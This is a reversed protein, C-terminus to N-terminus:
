ITGTLAQGRSKVCLPITLLHFGKGEVPQPTFFDHAMPEIADTRPVQDTNAPLDQLVMRGRVHPYRSRVAEIEHGLAGGIDVFLVADQDVGDHGIERELPYYDLWNARADRQTRMFANFEALYEPHRYM